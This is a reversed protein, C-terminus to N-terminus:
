VPFAIEGNLTNYAFLREPGSAKLQTYANATLPHDEHKSCANERKIIRIRYLSNIRNALYFSDPDHFSLAERRLCHICIFSAQRKQLGQTCEGVLVESLKVVGGEGWVIEDM